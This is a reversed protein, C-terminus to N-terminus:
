DPSVVFRPRQGNLAALVNECVCANVRAAAEATMSSNHPTIITNPVRLIPDDPAPPEDALTDLGAAAIWGEELARTLAAQDVMAGRACNILFASPRMARLQEEGIIGRTEETLNAHLTIISAEAVIEDLSVGTAGYAVFRGPDVYPDHALVRMSFGLARRAVAQGISGFGIIGITKGFIEVGEVHRWDLSRAVEMQEPMRRSLTLILAFTQDAVSEQLTGPTNAVIVGADTAAQLDISDCGVGWRAIIRLGPLAALVREDYREVSAVVADFGELLDILEDSGPVRDTPGHVVEVGAERLPAGAKPEHRVFPAALVMVRDPM